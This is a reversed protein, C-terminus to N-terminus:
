VDDRLVEHSGGGRPTTPQKEVRLYLRHLFRRRSLTMELILSTKAMRMVM